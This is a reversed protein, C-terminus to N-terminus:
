KVQVFGYDAKPGRDIDVIIWSPGRAAAREAAPACNPCAFICALMLMPEKFIGQVTLEMFAMPDLEALKALMPDTKLMDKVPAYTRITIVPKQGCGKCKAGPPFAHKIHYERPSITGGMFRNIHINEAM